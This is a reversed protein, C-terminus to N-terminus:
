KTIVFFYICTVHFHSAVFMNRMQVTNRPNPSSRRRARARAWEGATLVHFDLCLLAASVHGCEAPRRVNRGDFSAADHKRGSTRDASNWPNTLVAKALDAATIFGQLLWPTHAFAASNGAVLSHSHALVLTGTSLSFVARTQEQGKHNWYFGQLECSLRKPVNRAKTCSSLWPCSTRSNTVPRLSTSASRNKWESDSSDPRVTQKM